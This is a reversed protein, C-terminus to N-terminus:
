RRRVPKIKDPHQRREAKEKLSLGSGIFQGKGAIRQEDKARNREIQVLRERAADGKRTGAPFEKAIDEQRLHEASKPLPM